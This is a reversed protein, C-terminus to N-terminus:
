ASRVSPHLEHWWARLRPTTTIRTGLLVETESWSKVEGVGHPGDDSAIVRSRATGAPAIFEKIAKPQKRAVLLSPPFSIEKRGDGGAFPPLRVMEFPPHLSRIPRDSIWPRDAFASRGSPRSSSLKPLTSSPRPLKPGIALAGNGM